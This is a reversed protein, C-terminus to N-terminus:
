NTNPPTTLRNAKPAADKPGDVGDFEIVEGPGSGVIDVMEDKNSSFIMLTGFAAPPIEKAVFWGDHLAAEGERLFFGMGNKFVAVSKTRPQWVRPNPEDADAVKAKEQGLVLAPNFAGFALAAAYLSRRMLINRRPSLRTTSVPAHFGAAARM